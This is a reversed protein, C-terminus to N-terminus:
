GHVEYGNIREMPRLLNSSPLLQLHLSFSQGVLLVGHSADFGRSESIRVRLTVRPFSLHKNPDDSPRLEHVSDKPHVRSLRDHEDEDRCGRSLKM